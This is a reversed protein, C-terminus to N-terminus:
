RLTNVAWIFEWATKYWPDPKAEWGKGRPGCSVEGNGYARLTECERPKRYGHIPEPDSRFKSCTAQGRIRSAPIFHRCTCCFVTHFEHPKLADEKAM